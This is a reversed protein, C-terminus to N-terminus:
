GVVKGLTRLIKCHVSSPLVFDSYVQKKITLFNAKNDSIAAWRCEPAAHVVRIFQNGGLLPPMQAVVFQFQLADHHVGGVANKTHLQFILM